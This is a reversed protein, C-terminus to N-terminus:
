HLTMLPIDNISHEIWYRLEELTQPKKANKIAGWLYLDLPTLDASQPLIETTRGRRGIWKQKFTRYLFNRM